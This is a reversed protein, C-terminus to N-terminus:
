VQVRDATGAREMAQLTGAHLVRGAQTILCHRIIKESFSPADIGRQFLFSAFELINHAFLWSAHVPLGGPINALGSVLVGDIEIERGVSTAECNGGQDISVDVVVSGPKMASVMSRTLLIPAEEEPVLASLIVIDAEKALDGLIRREREVWEFPLARAYGGAGLALEPPVEFGGVKAGLSKAQERAESRIDVATCMGGLRKATAIAQLGVVGAGVILFKAPPTTGVATGMIPVFRPFRSAARLVALYGTVTSMSTLADMPQAHSLTRPLCDLSLSTINREALLRVLEHNAPSAPHLFAILIAGPKMLDVEHEQIAENFIPQKVKLIVDADAYLAKSSDVITAGARIYDSDSVYAGQGAGTEILVTFGLRRLSEVTEPLAAVRREGSLIEKPIGAKM